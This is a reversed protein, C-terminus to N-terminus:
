ELFKAKLKPTYIKCSEQKGFWKYRNKAIIDYIYDRIAEPFVWLFKTFNWFGGLENMIKIAATAKTYYAFSSEYLVISELNDKYIGLNKCIQQGTKSQLSAFIFTDRKDCDIVKNVAFNCLNCVGDFLIVKKGKPINVMICLYKM